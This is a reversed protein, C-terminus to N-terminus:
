SREVIRVIGYGERQSPLCGLLLENTKNGVLFIYLRENVTTAVGGKCTPV